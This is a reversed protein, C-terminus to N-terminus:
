FRKQCEMLHKSAWLDGAPEMILVEGKPDLCGALENQNRLLYERM